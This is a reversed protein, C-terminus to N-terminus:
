PRVDDPKAELKKQLESVQRELKACLAWNMAAEQLASNRQNTLAEILDAASVEQNM